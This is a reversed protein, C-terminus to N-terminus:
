HPQVHPFPAPHRELREVPEELPGLRLGALRKGRIINEIHTDEEEGKKAPRAAKGEEEGVEKTRSEGVAGLRRSGITRPPPDCPSPRAPASDGGKCCSKGEM